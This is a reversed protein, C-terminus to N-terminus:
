EQGSGVMYEAIAFTLGLPAIGDVVDRAEINGRMWFRGNKGVYVGAPLNAIYLDGVGLFSLPFIQYDTPGIHFYAECLKPITRGILKPFAIAVRNQPNGYAAATTSLDVPVTSSGFVNNWGPAAYSRWWNAAGLITKSRILQMGIQGSAPSVGGFGAALQKKAISACYLYFDRDELFITQLDRSQSFAKALKVLDRDFATLEADTLNEWALEIGGAWISISGPGTLVAPSIPIGTGKPIEPRVAM